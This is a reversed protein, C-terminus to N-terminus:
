PALKMRSGIDRSVIVVLQVEIYVTTDSIAVKPGLADKMRTFRHSILFLTTM